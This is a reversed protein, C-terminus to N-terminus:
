GRSHVNCRGGSADMCIIGGYVEVVLEGSVFRASPDCLKVTYPSVVYPELMEALTVNVTLVFGVGVGEGVGVPIRVCYKM